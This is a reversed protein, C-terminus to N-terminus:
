IHMLLFSAPAVCVCMCLVQVRMYPSKASCLSSLHAIPFHTRVHHLWKIKVQLCVASPNSAFSVTIWCDPANILFLSFSAKTCTNTKNFSISKLSERERSGRTAGEWIAEEWGKESRECGEVGPGGGARKERRDKKKGRWRGADSERGAAGGRRQLRRLLLLFARNLQRLATEPLEQSPGSVPVDLVGDRGHQHSDTGEEVCLLRDNNPTTTTPPPPTNVLGSPRFAIRHLIVASKKLEASISRLAWHFTIYDTRVEELHM